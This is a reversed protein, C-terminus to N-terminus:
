LASLLRMVVCRNKCGPCQVIVIGKEYSRKAFMHSSRTGCATVMCTFTLSLRPETKFTVKDNAEPLKPGSSSSADDDARPLTSSLFRQPGFSPAQPRSYRFQPSVGPAIRRFSATSPTVLLNSQSLQRLVNMSSHLKYTCPRIHRTGFGSHLDLVVQCCYTYAGM